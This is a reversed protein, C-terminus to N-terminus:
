PICTYFSFIELLKKFNKWTKSKWTTLPPPQPYFPLIYNLNVFLETGQVQYRLLWVDYSQWKHKYFSLFNQTENRIEPVTCWIITIKPVSTYSSPIELLNKWKEFNQNKPNKPPHLAFFHGLIVLKLKNQEIDSSSYMMDNPNQYHYRCTNKM